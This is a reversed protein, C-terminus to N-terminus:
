TRGRRPVSHASCASTSPSSEGCLAIAGSHRSPSVTGSARTPRCCSSYVIGRMAVVTCSRRVTTRAPARAPRATSVPQEPSPGVSSSFVTVVRGHIGLLGACRRSSQQLVGLDGEIGGETTEDPLIGGGPPLRRVIDTATDRKGGASAIDIQPALGSIVFPDRARGGLREFGMVERGGRGGRPAGAAPEGGRAAAFPHGQAKPGLAEGLQRDM